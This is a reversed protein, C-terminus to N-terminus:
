GVRTYTLDLDKDWTSGDKSLEGKGVMTRGGDTITCAYRQSFGPANRWWRWVDGEMAMQYRRSVGRQDFTLMWLEGVADDSGIIALGTPFRADDIESQMRLFAGGEIWEVTARGHLVTDPVLPHSGVTAWSGVLRALPALAPNPIRAADGINTM